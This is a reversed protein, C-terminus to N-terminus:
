RKQFEPAMLLLALGQQKSEARRVAIRTAESAAAGFAEELLDSPNPPDRVQRALQASLDLRLQLQEPTMWAASMDPFGNPGPPSWLPEGLMNLASLMRQPEEPTRNLLRMSAIVFDRPTRMKTLPLSWAEQSSVLRYTVAGLDGGTELFTKALQKILSPPPVDAIFHRAMKTAIFLATAPQTSLMDLAAEGQSVGDQGFTKKLLIQLGPEHWRPEFVFSGPPGLRGDASGYTWGTIIKALATVDAQTYGGNLGLTHLELIERALNENLGRKPNSKAVISEPGVSQANDLYFLMTPHQVVARAMDRFRGLIHPRIAEREFAGATMRVFPAKQCSVAFHNAWFATLRELIGCPARFAQQFRVLAEQRYIDQAVNPQQLFPKPINPDHISPTALQASRAEQVAKQEVFLTQLLDRSSQLITGHSITPNNKLESLVLARPDGGSGTLYMAAGGRIGVGFRNFAVLLSHPPEM